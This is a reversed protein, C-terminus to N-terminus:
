NTHEGGGALGDETVNVGDITAVLIEGGAEAVEAGVDGGEGANLRM